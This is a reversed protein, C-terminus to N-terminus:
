GENYPGSWKPEERRTVLDGQLVLLTSGEVVRTAAAKDGGVPDHGRAM